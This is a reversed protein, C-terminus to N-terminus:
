AHQYLFTKLPTKAFLGQRLMPMERDQKPAQWFACATQWNSRCLRTAPWRPMPPRATRGSPLWANSYAVDPLACAPLDCESLLAALVPAYESPDPSHTATRADGTR